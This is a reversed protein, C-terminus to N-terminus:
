CFVDASIQWLCQSLHSCYCATVGRDWPCIYPIKNMDLLMHHYELM